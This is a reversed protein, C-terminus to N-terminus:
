LNHMHQTNNPPKPHTLLGIPNTIEAVCIYWVYGCLHYICIVIFVHIIHLHEKYILIKKTHFYM